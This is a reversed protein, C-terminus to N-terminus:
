VNLARFNADLYYLHDDGAFFVGSEWSTISDSSLCGINEESESLSWQSPSASPISLRFIGNEMFVVLDGLLSELGIIKGGQADTLQIYNTIPIVDPQNLESFLIWNEHDETGDDNTIRVDGVYNRGNVYKSHRYNVQLSTEGTPHVVGDALSRDAFDFHQNNGTGKRWQYNESLYLTTSSTPLTNEVNNLYIAQSTNARVWGRSASTTLGGATFMYGKHSNEGLGFGSNMFIDASGGFGDRLASVKQVIINDYYYNEGNKAFQFKLDVKNDSTIDVYKYMEFWYRGDEGRVAKGYQLLQYSTKNDVSVSMQHHASGAVIAFAKAYAESATHSTEVDQHTYMLSVLVRDGNTYDDSTSGASAIDELIVPSNGLVNNSLNPDWFLSKSGTFYRTTSHDLDDTAHGKQWPDASGWDDDDIDSTEFTNLYGVASNVSLIFKKSHLAQKIDDHDWYIHDLGSALTIIQGSVSSVNYTGGDRLDLVKYTNDVGTLSSSTYLQLVNPVASTLTKIASTGLTSASIIKYYPGIYSTSRYINVATVRKNWNALSSGTDLIFSGRAVKKATEVTSGTDGIVSASLPSEQNGDFVLSYKYYYTTESLDRGGLADDFNGDFDTDLMFWNDSDATVLPDSIHSAIVDRPRALDTYFNPTGEEESWFFDRDIYQYIRPEDTLGCPFRLQSNYNIVKVIEDDVTIASGGLCLSDASNFSIETWSTLNTSYWVNDLNDIAIWYYDGSIKPNYWRTISIFTKNTDVGTTSGKRKYILGLKDFEANVLETCANISVEEADAQTILGGNLPIQQM